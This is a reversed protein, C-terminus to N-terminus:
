PSLYSVSNIDSSAKLISERNWDLRNFRFNELEPLWTQNSNFKLLIENWLKPDQHDLEIVELQNPILNLDVKRFNNRCNSSIIVLKKLTPCLSSISEWAPEETTIPHRGNCFEGHLALTHLSLSPHNFFNLVSSYRLGQTNILILEKLSESTAELIGNLNSQATTNILSSSFTISSIKSNIPQPIPKFSFSSSLEIQKLQNLNTLLQDIEIQSGSRTKFILHKLTKCSPSSNIANILQQCENDHRGDISIELKLIRHCNRLLNTFAFFNISEDYNSSLRSFFNISRIHYSLESRSRLTSGLSRICHHHTLSINRYIAREASSQIRKNLSILTVATQILESDDQESIVELFIQHLIDEPIDQFHLM